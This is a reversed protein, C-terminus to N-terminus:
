VGFRPDGPVIISSQEEVPQPPAAAQDYQSHWGAELMMKLGPARNGLEEQIFKAFQVGWVGPETEPFQPLRCALQIISLMFLLEKGCLEFSVPTMLVRMSRSDMGIAKGVCASCFDEEVWFCADDGTGCPTTETCGCERCKQQEPM